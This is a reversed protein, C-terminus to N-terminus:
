NAGKKEDRMGRVPVLVALKDASEAKYVVPVTVAYWTLIEKVTAATFSKTIRPEKPLTGRVEISLGAKKGIQALAKEPLVKDFDISIQQGAGELHDLESQVLVLVDAPFDVPAGSQPLATSVPILTLSAALIMVRM